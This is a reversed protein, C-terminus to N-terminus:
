LTGLIDNSSIFQNSIYRIFLFNEFPSMSCQLSQHELKEFLPVFWSLAIGLLLM